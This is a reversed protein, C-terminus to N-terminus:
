IENLLKFSVAISTQSAVVKSAGCVMSVLYTRMMIMKSLLLVDNGAVSHLQNVNFVFKFNKLLLNMPSSILLSFFTHFVNITYKM